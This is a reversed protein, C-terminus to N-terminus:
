GALWICRTFLIQANESWVYLHGRENIDRLWLLHEGVQSLSAPFRSVRQDLEPIGIQDFLLADRKFSELDNPLRGRVGVVGDTNALPDDNPATAM